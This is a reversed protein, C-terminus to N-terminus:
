RRSKTNPKRLAPQLAIGRPTGVDSDGGEGNSHVEEQINLCGTLSSPPPGDESLYPAEPFPLPPSAAFPADVLLERQPLTRGRPSPKALSGRSSLLVVDADSDCHTPSLNSSWNLRDAFDASVALSGRPSSSPSEAGSGISSSSSARSFAM